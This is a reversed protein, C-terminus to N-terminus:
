SFRAFLYLSKLELGRLYSVIFNASILTMLFSTKLILYISNRMLSSPVLFVNWVPHDVERSFYSHECNRMLMSLEKSPTLGLGNGRVKKQHM